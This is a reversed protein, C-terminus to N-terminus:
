YEIGKRMTAGRSFPHKVDVMETVLDAIDVIQPHADRGTLVVHLESPRQKLVAVVDDVPLLGYSIANNIEDLIVVEYSGSLLAEKCVKWAAEACQVDKPDPNDPNVHVFGEGLPKIVLGPALKKATNLEGYEWSGKLFQLIIVRLGQGIARMAMGLASTTKGKGNGTLVILYGKEENM